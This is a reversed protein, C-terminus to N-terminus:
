RNNESDDNRNENHYKNMPCSSCNGSCGGGCGKKNKANRITFFVSLGVIVAIVAILIYDLPKMRVFKGDSIRYFEYPLRRRM